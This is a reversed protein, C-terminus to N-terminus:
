IAPREAYTAAQRFISDFIRTIAYTDSNVIGEDVWDGYNYVFINFPNLRQNLNLTFLLLLPSKNKPSINYGLSIHIHREECEEDVTPDCDCEETEPDCTRPDPATPAPALTPGPQPSTQTDTSTGTGTSTATGVDPMPTGTPADGPNSPPSAPTPPRSPGPGEGPQTGGGPLIFPVLTATTVTLAVLLKVWPSLQPSQGGSLSGGSRGSTTFRKDKLFSEEYEDWARGLEEMFEEVAPALPSLDVTSRMLAAMILVSGVVLTAVLARELLAQLGSPDSYRVPSNAGYVYRNYEIPNRYNVPYPDRSLFRGLRSEYYRARLSYLGTLSDHQQSTYLYNNLTSGTQAYIEGFASYHYTDTVTGASDVLARTSGQADHLYYSDVGGRHQSLLRGDVLGYSVLPAGGGDTELVVDGYRSTEDWLYNTDAGNVTQRVRRGATDYAYDLAM